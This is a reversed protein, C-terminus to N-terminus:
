PQTTNSTITYFPPQGSDILLSDIRHRALPSQLKRLSNALDIFVKEPSMEMEQSKVKELYSVMKKYIKRAEPDSDEYLIRAINKWNQYYEYSQSKSRKISDQMWSLSAQSHSDRSLSSNDQCSWLGVLAMFIIAVCTYKHNKM